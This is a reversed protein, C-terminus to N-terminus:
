VEDNRKDTEGLERSYRGPSEGADTAEFHADKHSPFMFEIMMFNAADVLWETNGTEVYKGIRMHASEIASIKHPYAKELPGYKYLSMQMRKRMKDVFDESFESM